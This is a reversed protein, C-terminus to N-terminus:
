PVPLNTAALWCVGGAAVAEAQGALQASLVSPSLLLAILMIALTLKAASQVSSLESM